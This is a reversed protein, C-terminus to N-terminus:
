GGLAERPAAARPSRRMLLAGVVAAALVAAAAWPGVERRFGLTLAEVAPSMGEVLGPVYALALVGARLVLLRDLWSPALLVLPGWLLVDYWPLVYPGALLYVLGLAVAAPAAVAPVGSGAGLGPRAGRAAGGGLLAPWWVALLVAGLLLVGHLLLERPYGAEVLPRWLTALSVYRGAQRTQDYVHSGAWVHAPVLVLLAGALGRLVHRAGFGLGAPPTRPSPGAASPSSRGPSVPAGGASRGRSLASSRWWAWLLGAGVAGYPLKMGVAAGLLLGALLPRARALLLCGLAAAGAVVDLHAGAVGVGLLLPNLTWLVGARARAAPRGRLAVHLGAAAAFWAGAVVLQWCWVSRVVSEQGLLSIGALLATAVPGYVSVTDEWPARVASVVPDLGGAATRFDEPAVVYPDAGLAAIRGYAAYSLHDASGVPPVLVLVAAAGAGLLLVRRPDPRWGRAVASLLLWAGATAAVVAVALVSSVLESPVPEPGGLSLPPWGPGLGPVAASPGLVAVVVWALLALATCAGGGAAWRAWPRAPAATM